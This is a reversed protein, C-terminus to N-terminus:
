QIDMIHTRGPIVLLSCLNKSTGTPSRSHLLKRQKCHGLDMCYNSSESDENVTTIVSMNTENANVKACLRCKYAVVSVICGFLLGFIFVGVVIAPLSEM